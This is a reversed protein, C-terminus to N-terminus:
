LDLNKLAETKCLVDQYILFTHGSNRLQKITQALGLTSYERSRTTYVSTALVPTNQRMRGNVFNIGSVIM